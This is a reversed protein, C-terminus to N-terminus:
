DNRGHLYLISNCASACHWYGKTMLCYPDPILPRSPDNADKSSSDLRLCPILPDEDHLQIVLSGQSHRQRLLTAIGSGARLLSELRIGMNRDITHISASVLAHEDWTIRLCREEPKEHFTVQPLQQPWPFHRKGHMPDQANTNKGPANEYSNNMVPIRVPIALM